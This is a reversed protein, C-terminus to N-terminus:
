GPTVRVYRGDATPDIRLTHGDPATLQGSQTQKGAYFLHTFLLRALADGEGEDLRNLDDM